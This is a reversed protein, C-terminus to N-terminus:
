GTDGDEEELPVIIALAKGPIGHHGDLYHRGIRTKAVKIWMEQPPDDPTLDLRLNPNRIEEYFHEVECEIIIAQEALADIISASAGLYCAGLDIFPGLAREIMERKTM